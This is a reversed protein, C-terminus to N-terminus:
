MESTPPVKHLLTVCQPLIQWLITYNWEIWRGHTMTPVQCALFTRVDHTVYTVQRFPRFHWLFSAFIGFFFGLLNYSRAASSHVLQHLGFTLSDRTECVDQINIISHGAFITRSGVNSSCWSITEESCPCSDEPTPKHLSLKSQANFILQAFCLCHATQYFYKNEIGSM